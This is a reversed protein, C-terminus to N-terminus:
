PRSPYVGELAIIFNTGLYPNQVPLPQNGGSPGTTGNVTFPALTTNGASAVYAKVSVEGRASDFGNATALVATAGPSAVDASATSAPLAVSLSVPHVHGPLQAQSITVSSSGAMEGQTISGLSPGAGMGLPLRARYDPLGFTVQGDGGFTTGLLSFLASNQSIAMLSGDCFAYGRPAFNFGVMKIEGLFPDSM